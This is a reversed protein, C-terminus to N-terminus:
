GPPTSTLVGGEVETLWPETLPSPWAESGGASAAELALGVVSPVTVGPARVIVARDASWAPRTSTASVPELRAGCAAAATPALPEVEGGRAISSADVPTDGAGTAAPTPGAAVVTAAWVCAAAAVGCLVLM